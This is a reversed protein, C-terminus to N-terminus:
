LFGLLVGKLFGLLVGNLPVRISGRLPVKISGRLLLGLLVGNLPVRISGGKFAGRFYYFGAFSGM